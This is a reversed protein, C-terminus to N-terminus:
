IVMTIRCPTTILEANINCPLSFKKIREAFPIIDELLRQRSAETNARFKDGIKVFDKQITRVEKLTNSGYLQVIEVTSLPKGLKDRFLFRVDIITYFKLTNSIIDRLYIVRLDYCKYVKVNGDSTESFNNKNFLIPRGKEIEPLPVFGFEQSKNIIGELILRGTLRPEDVLKVTERQFGKSALWEFDRGYGFVKSSRVPAYVYIEKGEKEIEERLPELSPYKSRDAVMFESVDQSIKVEFMNIYYGPELM